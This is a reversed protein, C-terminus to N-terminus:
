GRRHLWLWDVWGHDGACIYDDYIDANNAVAAQGDSECNSASFYWGNYEWCPFNRGNCEPHPDMNDALTHPAAVATAADAAGAGAFTGVLAGALVLPGLALAALGRCPGGKRMRAARATEQHEM